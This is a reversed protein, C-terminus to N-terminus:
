HNLIFYTTFAFLLVSSITVTEIIFYEKDSSAKIEPM